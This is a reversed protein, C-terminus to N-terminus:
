IHMAIISCYFSNLVIMSSEKGWCGNREASTSDFFRDLASAEPQLLALTPGCGIDYPGYGGFWGLPM